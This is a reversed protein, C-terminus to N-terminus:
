HLEVGLTKCSVCKVLQNEILFNPQSDCVSKVLSKSCNGNLSLKDAVMELRSNVLDEVDTVSNALATLNTGITVFLKNAQNSKSQWSIPRKAWYPKLKKLLIQHGVANFAKKLDIFVVLNFWKQNLIGVMLATKYHVLQPIFNEFILVLIVSLGSNPEINIYM